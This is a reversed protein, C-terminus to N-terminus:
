FSEYNLFKSNKIYDSYAKAESVRDATVKAIGHRSALGESNDTLGRVRTAPGIVSKVKDSTQATSIGMSADFLKANRGRRAIISNSPSFIDQNRIQTPSVSTVPFKPKRLESQVENRCSTHSAQNVTSTM